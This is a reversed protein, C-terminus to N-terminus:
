LLCLSHALMNNCLSFDSSHCSLCVGETGKSRLYKYLVLGTGMHAIDSYVDSRKRVCAVCWQPSACLHTNPKESYHLPSTTVANDM